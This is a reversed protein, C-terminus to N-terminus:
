AARWHAYGKDRMGGGRTRRKIGNLHLDVAMRHPSKLQMIECM